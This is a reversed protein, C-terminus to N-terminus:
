RTGHAAADTETVPKLGELIRVREKVRGIDADLADSRADQRASAAQLDGVTKSSAAQGVQLDSIGKSMANVNASLTTVATTLSMVTTAFYFLIGLILTVLIHPVYKAVGREENAANLLKIANVIEDTSQQNNKKGIM